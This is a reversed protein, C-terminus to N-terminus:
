QIRFRVHRRLEAGRAPVAYLRLLYEGSRLRSLPLEVRYDAQKPTTEPVPLLSSTWTELTVNEADVLSANLIVPSPARNGGWYVRLWATVQDTAAFERSTVPVMPLADASM